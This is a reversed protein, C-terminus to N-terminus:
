DYIGFSVAEGKGPKESCYIEYNASDKLVTSFAISQNNKTFTSSNSPLAKWGDADLWILFAPLLEDWERKSKFAYRVLTSDASDVLTEAGTLYFKEPKPLTACLEHVRRLREKDGNAVPPPEAIRPPRTERSPQEVPPPEPAISLGVAWYGAFLLFALGFCKWWRRAAKDSEEYFNDFPM